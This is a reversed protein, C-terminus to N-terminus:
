TPQLTGNGYGRYAYLGDSTAAMAVGITYAGPDGNHPWWISRPVEGPPSEDIRIFSDSWEAASDDPLITLDGMPGKTPSFGEGYGLLDGTRSVEGGRLQASLVSFHLSM